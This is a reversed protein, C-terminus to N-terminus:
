SSPSTPSAIADCRSFARDFDERVLTRVKGPKCYMLDRILYM